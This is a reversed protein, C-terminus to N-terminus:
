PAARSRALWNLVVAAALAALTLWLGTSVETRVIEDIPTDGLRAKMDDPQSERLRVPLRVFVTYAILAAALACGAMGALAAKSRALLFSAALSAAILLAAFLVPLDTEGGGRPQETAGTMPNHLTVSGTALDLGSITALPQGACSVTVWPLLFLLLAALKAGRALNFFSLDSGARSSRTGNVDGEDPRNSTM